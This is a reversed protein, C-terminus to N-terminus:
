FSMSWDCMQTTSLVEDSFHARLRTLIEALKVNGKSLFVVIIRQAVASSVVQENVTILASLFCAFM